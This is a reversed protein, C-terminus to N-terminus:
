LLKKTNHEINFDGIIIINQDKEVKKRLIQNIHKEFHHYNNKPSNYISFISINKRHLTINRYLTDITETSMYEVKNIQIKTHIYEIIGYHPSTSNKQDACIIIYNPIAYTNSKDHQCLKSKLFINIQHLLINLKKPNSFTNQTKLLMTTTANQLYESVKISTSIYKKNINEICLGKLSTVRSFAVYHMHEWFSKPPTSTTELDLYIEPYTSSQSIHITCAAAQCLPFQIRHIWHDKVIFTRKIRIIPTFM